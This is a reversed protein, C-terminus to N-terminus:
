KKTSSSRITARTVTRGFNASRDDAALIEIDYAGAPLREAAATYTSTTGSYRLRVTRIPVGKRSIRATVQIENADWLGGPETPCGCTMTVKATIKLPESTSGAISAPADVIFGAIELVVGESEINQGPVLLMTTSVRQMAQPYKLPGEATIEVRTPSSLDLTATFSAAGPTGYVVARRERPTQMIRQTDGTGGKQIGTALVKGSGLARVTIRAGGVGDGIVKADRSVARVTITTQAASLSFAGLATLTMTILLRFMAALISCAQKM